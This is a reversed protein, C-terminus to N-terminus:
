HRYGEKQKGRNSGSIAQEQDRYIMEETDPYKIGNVEGPRRMEKRHAAEPFFAESDPEGRSMDMKRDSMPKM